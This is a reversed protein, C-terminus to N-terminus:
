TLCLLAVRCKQASVVAERYETLAARVAVPLRQVVAEGRTWIVRAVPLKTRQMRAHHQEAKEVPVDLRNGVVHIQSGQHRHTRDGTLFDDIPLLKFSFTEM